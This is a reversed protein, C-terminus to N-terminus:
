KALNYTIGNPQGYNNPFGLTIFKTLLRKNINADIKRATRYVNKAQTLAKLPNTLMLKLNSRLWIRTTRNLSKNLFEEGIESANLISSIIRYYEEIYPSQRKMLNRVTIPHIRFYNLPDAIFVIDSALLIKSWLMWDAGVKLNEDFGGLAHFITKKILVASANPITNQVVIYNCENKGTEFYDTAWKEKSLLDTSRKMSGITKGNSDIELSQCYAIGASPHEKVKEVLRELMNPACSDDAGAFLIYDGSAMEAGDNWRKYPLGSNASFLHTKVRPDSKEYQQIIEVSNDTSADDVIVLEFDTYTQNLLSQIREDLYRAYNYSPLIISVKPM